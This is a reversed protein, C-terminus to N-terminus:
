ADGERDLLPRLEEMAVEEISAEGAQRVLVAKVLGAGAKKDNQMAQWAKDKDFDAWLPLGLRRYVERTRRRLEGDRIMPLMGLAVCEGHYLGGLGMASEIGHGLTHGFNLIARLGQETEDQEVVRRKVELARRIIEEVDRDPDGTEFLRFLEADGILGAKVAEALGNTFHRRPLTALTDPDILVLRPQYFAGVINKVGGLNVAVKGGISSDIQALTTTPIGVFDIGRMYSAAGFGALDGVVGGGLAVVLDQRHFGHELLRQWLLELMAPSKASEGAPVVLHYGQSCQDLVAQLYERPVGDDTVVLVKRELDVLQGLRGLSGRELVIPYSRSGLHVTMMM